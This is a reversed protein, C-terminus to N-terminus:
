EGSELKRNANSFGGSKSCKLAASPSLLFFFFNIEGYLRRNPREAWIM